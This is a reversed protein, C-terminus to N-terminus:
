LFNETDAKELGIVTKNVWKEDKIKYILVSDEDKEIVRTIAKKMAEFGAATLEGQFVSNQVWNLQRKLLKRIKDIRKVAVDYVVLVYLVVV